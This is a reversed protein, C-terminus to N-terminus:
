RQKSSRTNFGLTDRAKANIRRLSLVSDGRAYQSHSVNAMSLFSPKGAYIWDYYKVLPKKPHLDFRTSTRDMWGGTLKRVHAKINV